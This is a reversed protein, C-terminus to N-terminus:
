VHATGPFIRVHDECRKVENFHFVNCIFVMAIIYM